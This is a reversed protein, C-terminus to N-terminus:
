LQNRMPKKRVRVIHLVPIEYEYMAQIVGRQVHERELRKIADCVSPECWDPFNPKIYRAKRKGIIRVKIEYNTYPDDAFGVCVVSRVIHYEKGDHEVTGNLIVRYKRGERVAIYSLESSTRNALADDAIELYELSSIGLKHRRIHDEM